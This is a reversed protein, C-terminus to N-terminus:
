EETNPKTWFIIQEKDKNFFKFELLHHSQNPAIRIWQKYKLSWKVQKSFLGKTLYAYVMPHVTISFSKEVQKEILYEIMNQIEEEILISAKVKGTGSCSPCNESTDIITAQRVRQRTIQILGFKNVPLITHKAKDNKMLQVLTQYLLNRNTTKKMDIFDITIIGGMDRLRLQRAIEAAAELNVATANEEQDKGSKSRNGSNVDIVHMAETHEIVLYIGNKITVIKGFSGKIQKAINMTEFLPKPNKYLKLINAYNTSILSLYQKIEQYIIPNDVHIAEFSDNVMDRILSTAIDLEAAVKAPYTVIPIKEIILKWKEVLQNLDKTIEDLNKGNAVTRIIIGCKKPRIAQVLNKLRRREASSKIKQSVTVKDMFPVLVLYRGALSIETTVTAGKTSIPEKAIQVLIKQGTTLVENIKGVKPIEPQYPFNSISKKNTTIVQNVFENMTRAHNGLDLYHLFADRESGINVFAANMGSSNIKKVVGLYIDGVAFQDISKEKHIEVLKKDELLAIQIEKDASTIVLEKSIPKPLEESM